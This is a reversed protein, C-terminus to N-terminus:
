WSSVSEACLMRVWRECWCGQWDARRGYKRKLRTMEDINESRISDWIDHWVANYRVGRPPKFEFADAHIIRVRDSEYTPAVLKIVDESQEIVTVSEVSKKRLVADICMGIGLGNILVNGTAAFVFDRHDLMEDPTDSMVVTRDRTLRTYEGAPVYGRGNSFARFRSVASEEPTIEFRSVKWPGSEGEPVRVKRMLGDM